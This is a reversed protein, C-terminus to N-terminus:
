EYMAFSIVADVQAHTTQYLLETFPFIRVASVIRESRCAVRFTEFIGSGLKTIPAEAVVGERLNETSAGRQSM